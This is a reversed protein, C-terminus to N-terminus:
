AREALQRLSEEFLRRRDEETMEGALLQRAASSTLDAAAQRLQAKAAALRREIEQEAERRVRESEQDARELLSARAAEGEAVGRARIEELERDVRALREHIQTELRAAQARREQAQRLREAIDQQRKRFAEVVPRAVFHLLVALFAVLNALQWIWLPIGLFDAVGEAEFLASPALLSM